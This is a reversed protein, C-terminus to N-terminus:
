RMAKLRPRSNHNLAQGTASAEHHKQADDSQRATLADTQGATTSAPSLQDAGHRDADSRDSSRCSADPANASSM